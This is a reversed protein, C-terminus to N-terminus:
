VEPRSPLADGEKVEWGVEGEEEVRLRGHASGVEEQKELDCESIM